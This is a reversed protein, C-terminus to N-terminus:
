SLAMLYQKIGPYGVSINSLQSQLYTRETPTFPAFSKIDSLLTIESEMDLQAKTMLVALLDRIGATESASITPNLEIQPASDDGRISRFIRALELKSKQFMDPQALIIAEYEEQTYVTVYGERIYRRLDNSASLHSASGQENALIISGKPIFLPYEKKSLPDLIGVVIDGMKRPDVKSITNHLFVSQNAGCLEEFVTVPSKAM